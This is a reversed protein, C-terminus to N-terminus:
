LWLRKSLFFYLFFVRSLKGETRPNLAQWLHWFSLGPAQLGRMIWPVPAAHSAAPCTKWRQDSLGAKVLSIGTKLSLYITPRGISKCNTTSLASPNPSHNREWQSSLCVVQKPYPSYSSLLLRGTADNDLDMVNYNLGPDWLCFILAGTSCNEWWLASKWVTLTSKWVSSNNLIKCIGRLDKEGEQGPEIVLPIFIKPFVLSLPVLWTQYLIPLAVACLHQM